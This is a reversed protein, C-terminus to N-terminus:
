RMVGSRQMAQALVSSLIEYGRTTLHTTDKFLDCPIRNECAALIREKADVFFFNKHESWEKLANNAHEINLARFKLDRGKPLISLVFVPASPIKRHVMFVIALVGKAVTCADDGTSINNTGAVILVARPRLSTLRSRELRWLVNETRDGALAFNSAQRGAVAALMGRPWQEAISDGIVLLNGEPAQVLERAKDEALETWGSRVGPSSVESSASGTSRCDSAFAQATHAAMFPGLVAAYISLAVLFRKRLAQSVAAEEM